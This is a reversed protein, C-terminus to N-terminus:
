RTLQCRAVILYNGLSGPPSAGPVVESTGFHTRIESSHDKVKVLNGSARTVAHTAKDTLILNILKVEGAEDSYSGGAWWMKLSYHDDSVDWKGIGDLNEGQSEDILKVFKDAYGTQYGFACKLVYPKAESAHGQHLFFLSMMIGIASWSFKKM